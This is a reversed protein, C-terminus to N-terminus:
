NHACLWFLKAPNSLCLKDGTFCFFEHQKNYQVHKILHWFSWSHFPSHVKRVKRKWKKWWIKTQFFNLFDYFNHLVNSQFKKLKESYFVNSFFYLTWVDWKIDEEINQNTGARQVRVPDFVKFHTHIHVFFVDSKKNKRHQNAPWKATCVFFYIFM